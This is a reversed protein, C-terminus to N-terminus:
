AAHVVLGHKPSLADLVQLSATSPTDSPTNQEDLPPVILASLFKRSVEFGARPAMWPRGYVGLVDVSM